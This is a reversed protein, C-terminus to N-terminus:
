AKASAIALSFPAASLTRLISDRRAMDRERTRELATARNSEQEESYIYAVGIVSVLLAPVLVASVLVVLRSRIRM